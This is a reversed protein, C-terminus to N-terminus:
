AKGKIKFGASLLAKVRKVEAINAERLLKEDNIEKEDEKELRERLAFKIKKYEQASM